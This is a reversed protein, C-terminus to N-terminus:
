LLYMKTLTRNPEYQLKAISLHGTERSLRECKEVVLTGFYLLIVLHVFDCALWFTNVPINVPRRMGRMCTHSYITTQKRCSHLYESNVSCLSPFSCPDYHCVDFAETVSNVWLSYLVFYTMIISEVLSNSVLVNMFDCLLPFDNWLLNEGVWRLSISLSGNLFDCCVSTM